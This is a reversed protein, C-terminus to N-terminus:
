ESRAFVAPQQGRTFAATQRERTFVAGQVARRVFRQSSATRIFVYSGRAIFVQAHGLTCTAANGKLGISVNYGLAGAAGAATNGSLSPGTGLQGPNSTAVNGTLNVTISNVLVGVAGAAANGAMNAALGNATGVMGSHSAAANGALGITAVDALVGPTGAAANGTLSLPAAFTLAGHTGTAANGTLAVDLEATVAGAAATTANGMMAVSSGNNIGLTGPTGTTAVGALAIDVGTTVAITGPTGVGTNGMLTVDLEATIAGAAGAVANGVITSGISATGVAGIAANGILATGISATGVAGTAANGTLTLVLGSSAVITGPTGTATNGVLTVSVSETSTVMGLAGAGANGLVTTDIELGLAGPNGTAANGTLALALGTTATLTGVAGTAANGTLTISGGVSVGLTGVSGIATNGNLTPSPLTLPTLAEVYLSAVQVPPAQTTLAAVYDLAVVELHTICTYDLGAAPSGITVNLVTGTLTIEIAKNYETWESLQYNAAGSADLGFGVNGVFDVMATSDLTFLPTAGDKVQAYVQRHAFSADGIIMRIQYRGPVPVDVRFTRQAGTNALCNIGAYVDETTVRDFVVTGTGTVDWGFTAGGRTTPYLDNIVYTNSPKDTVYGATARFNFGKSFPAIRFGVQASALSAPTWPMSGPATDFIARPATSWSAPLTAPPRVAGRGASIGAQTVVPQLVNILNASNTQLAEAEVQVAAVAIPTSSLTALAYRDTASLSSSSVYATDDITNLLPYSAGGTSSTFDKQATDANLLVRQVTSPGIWGRSGDGIYLPGFVHTTGAGAVISVRDIWPRTTACTSIGTLAFETAGNIKVTASGATGPAVQVDIEIWYNSGLALVTTGNALTTGGLGSFNQGYFVSLTGDPNCGLGIQNFTNDEGGQLLHLFSSNTVSPAFAGQPSFNFGMRFKQLPSIHTNCYSVTSGNLIVSGGGSTLVGGNGLQYVWRRLIDATNNYTKWSELLAFGPNVLAGGVIGASATTANGTLTVNGTTGAPYTNGLAGTAANGVLTVNVAAGTIAPAFNLPTGDAGYGLLTTDVSGSPAAFDFPDGDAGFSLALLSNANPLSM